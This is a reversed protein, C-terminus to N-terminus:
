ESVAATETETETAPDNTTAEDLIVADEIEKNGFISAAESLDSVVPINQEDVPVESREKNMKAIMDEVFKKMKNKEQERKLELAKRNKVKKEKHQKRNRSKPM